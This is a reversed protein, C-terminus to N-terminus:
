DVCQATGPPSFVGTTGTDSSTITTPAAEPRRRALPHLSDCPAPRRVGPIAEYEHCIPKSNMFIVIRYRKVWGKATEKKEKEPM